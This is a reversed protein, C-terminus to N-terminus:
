PGELTEFGNAGARPKVWVIRNAMRELRGTAKPSCVLLNTVTRTGSLRDGVLDSATAIGEQVDQRKLAQTLRARPPRPTSSNPSRECSKCLPRAFTQMAASVDAHM